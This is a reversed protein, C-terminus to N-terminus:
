RRESGRKWSRSRQMLKGGYARRDTKPADNPAALAPLITGSKKCAVGSLASLNKGMEATLRISASGLGEM